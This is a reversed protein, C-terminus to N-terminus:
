PAVGVVGVEAVSPRGSWRPMEVDLRPPPPVVTAPAVARTAPTTAMSAGIAAAPLDSRDMGADTADAEPEAAAALEAALRARASSRLQLVVWIFGALHLLVIVTVGAPSRIAPGIGLWDEVSPNDSYITTLVVYMNAFTAVTLVLYATLWRLSVAALIVALAFFPYGYREHVRTPVIFFALALIALAVLLTLRDPRRAAVALVLAFVGLLLATGVVIAPFPGIFATGWGCDDQVFTAAADCIWGGTAAPSNGIDSPLLAWPNYANVTTFPYTGGTSLLQRFFGRPTLGFPISM